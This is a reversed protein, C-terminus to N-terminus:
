FQNYKLHQIENVNSDVAKLCDILIEYELSELITNDNNKNIEPVWVALQKRAAAFIPDMPYNPIQEEFLANNIKSMDIGMHFLNNAELVGLQAYNAFMESTNTYQQPQQQQANTPQIQLQQLSSQHIQTAKEMQPQFMGGKQGGKQGFLGSINTGTNMESQSQSTAKREADAELQALRQQGFMGAQPGFIGGQPGFM